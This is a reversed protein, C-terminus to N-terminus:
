FAERFHWEVFSYLYDEIIKSLFIQKPKKTILSYTYENFGVQVHCETLRKGALEKSEKQPETCPEANTLQWFEDGKLRWFSINPYQTKRQPSFSNLLELLPHKIETGYNFLCQHGQKYKYQSLVFFLLLLKHSARQDGKKWTTLVTIINQLQKLNM